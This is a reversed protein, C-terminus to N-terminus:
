HPVSLQRIITYTEDDSGSKTTWSDTRKWSASGLADDAFGPEGLGGCVGGGTCRDEMLRARLRNPRTRPLM